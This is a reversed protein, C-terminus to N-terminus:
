VRESTGYVRRQRAMFGEQICCAGGQYTIFREKVRTFTNITWFTYFIPASGSKEGNQPTNSAGLFVQIELLVEIEANFDCYITDVPEIHFFVGGQM